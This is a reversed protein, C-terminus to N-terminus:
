DQCSPRGSWGAARRWLALVQATHAPDAEVLDYGANPRVRDDACHPCQPVCWIHSWSRRGSRWRELHAPAAPITQTPVTSM